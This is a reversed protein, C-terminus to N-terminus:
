RALARGAKARAFLLTRPDVQQPIGSLSVFLGGPRYVPLLGDLMDEVGELRSIAEYTLEKRDRLRGLLAVAYGFGESTRPPGRDALTGLSEAAEVLASPETGRSDRYRREAYLVAGDPLEPFWNALNSLWPTPLSTGWEMRLLVLGAVVAALPSKVKDRVIQRLLDPDPINPPDELMRIDLPDRRNRLLRDADRTAGVIDGITYRRWLDAILGLPSTKNALQAELRTIPGPPHRDTSEFDMSIEFEPSAPDSPLLCTHATDSFDTFQLWHGLRDFHQVTLEVRYRDRTQNRAVENIRIVEPTLWRRETLSWVDTRKQWLETVPERGFLDHAEQYDQAWSTGAAEGPHYHDPTEGALMDLTSRLAASEPSDIYPLIPPLKHPVAGPRPSRPKIYTIALEPPMQGGLRVYQQEKSGLQKLLERVRAYAYPYLAFLEVACRQADCKLRIDPTGRLGDLIAEGFLSIGKRPDRREWARQGSAAAYLVPNTLSPNAQAAEDETLIKGGTVNKGRLEASDSRCADVLFLLREIPLATVGCQLNRTSIAMNINPAPARLYDAPLLIQQETVSEIGHGSFFFLGRASTGAAAPLRQLSEHWSRIALDCNEYTPEAYHPLRGNTALLPKEEETPSLLLWCGAVPAEDVWYQTSLWTFVQFATLASVHLQGLDRAEAIWRTGRDETPAEGGDLHRYRSVGIIVAFTGPSGPKWEPNVWHGPSNGDDRPVPTM